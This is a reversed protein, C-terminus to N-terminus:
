KVLRRLKLVSVLLWLMVSGPGQTGQNLFNVAKMCVYEESSVKLQHFKRFLYILREMVEMSDESFRCMCVRACTCMCVRVDNDFYSERQGAMAGQKCSQGILSFGVDTCLRFASGAM